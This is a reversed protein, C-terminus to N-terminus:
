RLKDWPVGEELIDLLAANNNLDVGPQLWGKCDSVPLKVRPRPTKARALELRLGEEILATLTMGRRQAERRAQDLLGDNLRITTRM